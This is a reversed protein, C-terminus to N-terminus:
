KPILDDVVTHTVFFHGTIGVQLFTILALLLLKLLVLRTDRPFLSSQTPSKMSESLLPTPSDAVSQSNARSFGNIGDGSLFGQVTLSPASFRQSSFVVAAAAAAAALTVAAVAVAAFTEYAEEQRDPSAWSQWSNDAGCVKVKKEGCVRGFRDNSSVNDGEQAHSGRAQAFDGQEGGGDEMGPAAEDGDQALDRWFSPGILFNQREATGIKDLGGRRRREAKSGRFFGPSISARM